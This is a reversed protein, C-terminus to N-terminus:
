KGNNFAGPEAPLVVGGQSKHDTLKGGIIGYHIPSIHGCNCCVIEEVRADPPLVRVHVQWSRGKCKPCDCILRGKNPTVVKRVRAEDVALPIRGGM